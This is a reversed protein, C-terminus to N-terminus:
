TCTRVIWTRIVWLRSHAVLERLQPVPVSILLIRVQVYPQLIGPRLYLRAIVLTHLLLLLRLLLKDLLKGHLLLRQLLRLLQQAARPRGVYQLLVVKAQVQLAVQLVKHSNMCTALPYRQVCSDKYVLYRQVCSCMFVDKYVHVKTCM